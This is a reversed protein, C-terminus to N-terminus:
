STDVLSAGESGGPRQKSTVKESVAERAENELFRNGGKSIWKASVPASDYSVADAFATYLFVSPFCVIYLNCLSLFKQLYILM